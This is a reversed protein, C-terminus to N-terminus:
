PAASVQDTDELKRLAAYHACLALVAWRSRTHGSTRSAGSMSNSLDSSVRIHLSCSGMTTEEGFDVGRLADQGMGSRSTLIERVVDSASVPPLGAQQSSRRRHTEAQVADWVWQPVRDITIPATTTSM